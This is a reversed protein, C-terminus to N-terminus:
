RIALMCRTIMTGTWKLGCTKPEPQSPLQVYIFGIPVIYAVESKLLDMEKKHDMIKLAHIKVSKELSLVRQQMQYFTWTDNITQNGPNYGIEYNEAFITGNKFWTVKPSIKIFRM